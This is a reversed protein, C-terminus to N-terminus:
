RWFQGWQDQLEPQHYDNVLGYLRNRVDLRAGGDRSIPRIVANLTRQSPQGVFWSLPISLTIGKDFSGEGFEEASVNTKTAFAGVRWGNGFTRALTVTAGVDGALYRGVDVSGEFGNGFAYYASAHGTVVGYDQFGFLRDFDRQRAYNVEAGFALRSAVPKWLLEASVGGFMSELYGVSVRSYLNTGPRAFYEFTLYDIGSAGERAYSNANTRVTPLLSDSVRNSQDRNGFFKIQAGGSLVFGPAVDYSASVQAGFDARIPSQPDFLATAVYPAVGWSFRPLVRIPTTPFAGGADSIGAAAYALEAGNPAHEYTELDTRQLTVVSARLGQVTPAIEFTEVSPPLVRTLIRAARGIAQTEADFTPNRLQVRATQGSIALGELIIGNQGLETALRTRLENEASDSLVTGPVWGSLDAARVGVPPPAGLLSGGNPLSKPNFVISATAGIATGYLYYGGLTITNNVRYQLGFSLPSQYDLVGVAREAVYDDSSYEVSLSLKESAQWNIGAFVAAPGRFWQDVSFNGGLGPDANRSNFGDGFISLPNTFSNHTGLRGWGLGVTADIKNGFAKTAAVYEAALLGTGGIDRLGIAVAPRFRGEDMIQYHLDVSRDYNDETTGLDGLVGKLNSYRFAVTLRPTAQFTLTNRHFGNFNSITVGLTADDLARGTPMEVMGPTGSFSLNVRGIGQADAWVPAGSMLGGTVVLLAIGRNWPGRLCTADDTVSIGWAKPEQVWGISPSHQM